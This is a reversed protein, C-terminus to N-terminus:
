SNVKCIGMPRPMPMMSTSIDTKEDTMAIGESVVSIAKALRDKEEEDRRRKTIDSGISLIGIFTGQEDVVAKNAWRVWVRRGDKTINENENDKFQDPDRRIEEM